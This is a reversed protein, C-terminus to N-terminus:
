HHSLPMTPKLTPLMPTMPTTTTPDQASHCSVDIITRRNLRNYLFKYSAHKEFDQGIYLVIDLLIIYIHYSSQMCVHKTLHLTIITLYRAHFIINNSSIRYSEIHYSCAVDYSAFYPKLSTSSIHSLYYLYLFCDISCWEQFNINFVRNNTYWNGLFSMDKNNHQHLWTGRRGGRFCGNALCFPEHAQFCFLTTHLHSPRMAWPHCRRKAECWRLLRPRDSWDVVDHRNQLKKKKGSVNQPFHDLVFVLPSALSKYLRHMQFVLCNPCPIISGSWAMFFFYWKPDLGKSTGPLTMNTQLNLSTGAIFRSKVKISKQCEWLKSWTIQLFPGSSNHWCGWM